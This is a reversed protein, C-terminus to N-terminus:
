FDTLLMEVSNKAREGLALQGSIVTAKDKIDSSGSILFARRLYDIALLPNNDLQDAMTEYYDARNFFSDLYRDVKTAFDEGYEIYETRVFDSPIKAEKTKIVVTEKGLTQAIGIEYFVNAQTTVPMDEHIVAIALPVEVIMSWIKQLFDRGTVVSNADM